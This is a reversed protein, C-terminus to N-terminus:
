TIVTLGQKICADRKLINKEMEKDFTYSSKIEVILNFEPIYFDPFYVSYIEYLIGSPKEIHFGIGECFIIFDLEYSGQYLIGNYELMEFSSIKQKNFIDINRMPHDVGYREFITKKIRDKVCDSKFVNDVGYKELCTKRSKVKFEESEVYSCVGYKELCTNQMRSLVISSKSPVTVGYNCMTTKSKKNKIDSLKSVNDVGYRSMCTEKNKVPNNYNEIGYKELCTKKSRIYKCKVCYSPYTGNSTSKNYDIFKIKRVSLCNDCEVSIRKHSNLSLDKIKITKGYVKVEKTLIM